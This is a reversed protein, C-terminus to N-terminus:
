NIKLEIEKQNIMIIQLKHILLKKIIWIREEKKEKQKLKLLKM